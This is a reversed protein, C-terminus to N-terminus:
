VRTIQKKKNDQRDIRQIAISRNRYRKKRGLLRIVWLLIRNQVIKKEKTDDSSVLEWAQGSLM